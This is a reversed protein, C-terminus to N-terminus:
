KTTNIEEVTCELGCKECTTIEVEDLENAHRTTKTPALCCTSHVEIKRNLLEPNQYINGIVESTDARDCYFGTFSNDTMNLEYAAQREDWHVAAIESPKGKSFGKFRLIDGEYIEKGNKDKLGTFQMIALEAEPKQWKKIGGNISM